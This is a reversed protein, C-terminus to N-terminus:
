RGITLPCACTIGMNVHHAIHHSLARVRYGHLVIKCASTHYQVMEHAEWCTMSTRDCGITMCMNDMSVYVNSDQTAWLMAREADGGAREVDGAEEGAMSEEDVGDEGICRDCLGGAAVDM